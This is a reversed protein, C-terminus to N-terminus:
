DLNLNQMKLKKKTAYKGSKYQKNRDDMDQYRLKFFWIRGNKTKDDKAKYIGM